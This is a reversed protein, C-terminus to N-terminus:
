RKKPFYSGISGDANHYFHIEVKGDRSFGFYENPNTSTLDRGHNNAIAYEVEDLIKNKDWDEPFFSSMGQNNAKVLESGDAKIVVPKAQFVRSGDDIGSNLDYSVDRFEYRSTPNDFLCYKLSSM